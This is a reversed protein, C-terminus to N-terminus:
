LLIEGLQQYIFLKHVSPQLGFTLTRVHLSCSAYMYANM